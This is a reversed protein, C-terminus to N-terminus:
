QETTLPAPSHKRHGAGLHLHLQASHSLAGIIQHGARSYHLHFSSELVQSIKLYHFISTSWLVFLIKPEKM